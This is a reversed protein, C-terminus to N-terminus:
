NKKTSASSCLDGHLVAPFEHIFLHNWHGFIMFFEDTGRLGSIRTTPAPKVLAYSLAQNTLVHTGDVSDMKLLIKGETERWREM